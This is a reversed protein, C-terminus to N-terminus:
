HVSQDSASSLAEGGGRRAAAIAAVLLGGIIAFALIGVIQLWGGIGAPQLAHLVADGFGFRAGKTERLTKLATLLAVILLGVVGLAVGGAIGRLALSAASLPPGTAPKEDATFVPERVGPPAFRALMLM